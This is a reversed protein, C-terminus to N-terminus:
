QNRAKWADVYPKYQPYMSLKYPIYQDLVDYHVTYPIEIQVVGNKKLLERKLNDRYIQKEFDQRSRHFYEVYKTHQEGQREICLKLDDNFLDCEMNRGTQPNKLFDPRISPFSAQFIDEVIERCRRETKKPDRKKKSAPPAFIDNIYDQLKGARGKKPKWGMIWCILFFAISITVLLTFGNKEWWGFM